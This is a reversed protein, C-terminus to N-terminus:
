FPLADLDVAAGIEDLGVSAVPAIEWGLLAALDIGMDRAGPRWKAAKRRARRILDLIVSEGDHGDDEVVECFKALTRTWCRDFHQMASQLPPVVRRVVMVARGLLEVARSWWGLRDMRVIHVHQQRDRFDIADGLINAIKERLRETTFSSALVQFAQASRVGSLEVEFRISNIKGGSELSKDYFRVYKGSGDSGRRGFYATNGELEGTVVNRVPKRPDYRKFGIVNGRPRPLTSRRWRGYNAPSITRLWTLALATADSTIWIRFCSFNLQM